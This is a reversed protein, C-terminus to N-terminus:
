RRQPRSLAREVAAQVEAKSLAGGRRRSAPPRPPAPSVPQVQQEPTPRAKRPKQAQKLAVRQGLINVRELADEGARQAKTEAQIKNAPTARAAHEATKSARYEAVHAAAIEGALGRGKGRRLLLHAWGSDLGWELVQRVTTSRDGGLADTLRAIKKLMKLPLRVPVVPDHGTRPRGRRRKRPMRKQICLDVGSCPWSHKKRMRWALFVFSKRWVGLYRM